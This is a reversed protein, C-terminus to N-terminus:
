AKGKVDIEGTLKGGMVDNSEDIETIFGRVVGLEDEVSTGSLSLSGRLVFASITVILIGTCVSGVSTHM